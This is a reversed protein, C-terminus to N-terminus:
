WNEKDAIEKKLELEKKKLKLTAPDNTWENEKDWHKLLILGATTDPLVTKLTTETKVLVPKGIAKIDIGNQELISKLIEPYDIKQKVVKREQYKYGLARKLMAAKIEIVPEKRNKKILDSLEPYKKKYEIFTSKNIGLNKAIEKETAGAQVWKRIERFRKKVKEDYKSPRAM